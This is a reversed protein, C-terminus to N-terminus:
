THHSNSKMPSYRRKKEILEGRVIGQEPTVALANTPVFGSLVAGEALQEVYPMTYDGIALFANIFVLM